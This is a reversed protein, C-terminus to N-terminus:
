FMKTDIVYIYILTTSPLVIKRDHSLNKYVIRSLSSEIMGGFGLRMVHLQSVTADSASGVAIM